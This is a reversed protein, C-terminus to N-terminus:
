TFIYTKTSPQSSCNVSGPAIKRGRRKTTSVVDFKISL